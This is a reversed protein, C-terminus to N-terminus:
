RRLIRVLDMVDFEGDQLDTTGLIHNFWLVSVHHNHTFFKKFIRRRRRLIRGIYDMVGREGDHGGTTGM